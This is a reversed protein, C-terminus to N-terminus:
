SNYSLLMKDQAPCGIGFSRANIPHCWAANTATLEWSLNLIHKEFLVGWVKPDGMLRSHNCSIAKLFM